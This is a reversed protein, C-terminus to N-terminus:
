RLFRCNNDARSPRSISPSCVHDSRANSDRPLACCWRADERSISRFAHDLRQEVSMHALLSQWRQLYRVVLGFAGNDLPTLTFAYPPTFIVIGGARRVMEEFKASKHVKANDLVIIPYQRVLPM